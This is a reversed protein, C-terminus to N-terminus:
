GLGMEDALIGNMNNTYLSALWELGAHQYPRLSGRLLFPARLRNPDVPEKNEEEVGDMTEDAEDESSEEESSTFQPDSEEEEEQVEPEIEGKASIIQVKPKKPPPPPNEEPTWVSRVRRQRKGEILLAPSTPGSIAADVLSQDVPKEDGLEIKSQESIGIAEPQIPQVIAELQQAVELKEAQKTAEPQGPQETAELTQSVEVQQPQELLESQVPQEAQVLDEVSTAEQAAPMPVGYRRLLEEIPMDADALLGDDESDADGDKVDDEMEVDLEHDKEDLDSIQDVKFEIDAADPDIEPNASTFSKKARQRKSRPRIIQIEPQNDASTEPLQCNTHASSGNAAVETDNAPVQNSDLPPLTKQPHEGNTIPAVIVNEPQSASDAAQPSSAPIPSADIGSAHAPDEGNTLTDTTDAPVSVLPDVVNIEVQNGNTNAEADALLARTDVDDDSAQDEASEDDGSNEDDDDNDVPSGLDSEVDATRNIEQNDPAGNEEQGEAEEEDDGDEDSEEDEESDEASSVEETGSSGEEDEDEDEGDRGAFEDRHADLLGTSRQLMNQLHEKGLRDQEEKQLQVLKARVVKVALAWRRRLSKILEKMQLKRRKEEALRERDDKGEIHDWYGQIMKAIKKCVIPKLRAENLMANRVQVMHALLSDQYDTKRPPLTPPKLSIKANSTSDDDLLRLLRGQHQLYNVRNRYYAETAAKLELTKIEPSPGTDELHIYSDLIANLDGNHKSSTTPLHAFDTYYVTRPGRPRKRPQAPPPPFPLHALTPLSPAPVPTPNPDPSDRIAPSSPSEDDLQQSPLNPLSLRPPRGRRKKLPPEVAEIEAEEQVEEVLEVGMTARRGKGKGKGKEPIPPPLMEDNKVKFPRGLKPKVVVEVDVTPEIDSQRGKGKSKSSSTPTSTPESQRTPESSFLETQENAQRRTTRSGLSARSRSPGAVQSPPLSPMLNLLNYQSRKYQSM